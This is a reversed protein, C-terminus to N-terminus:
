RLLEVTIGDEGPSKENKMQSLAKEVECTIINPLIELTRHETPPARLDNGPSKPEASRTAYLEGYFGEVIKLMQNRDTVIHGDSNKLKIIQSASKNIKRRFIKPGKYQKGMELILKIFTM